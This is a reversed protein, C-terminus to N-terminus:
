ARTDLLSGVVDDATQIVGAASEAQLESQRLQVVADTIPVNQQDVSAQQQSVAETTTDESEANFENLQPRANASAITQASEDASRQARQFAEVGSNMVSSITM